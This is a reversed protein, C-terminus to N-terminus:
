DKEVGYPLEPNSGLKAFLDAVRPHWLAAGSLHGMVPPLIASWGYGSWYTFSHRHATHHVDRENDLMWAKCEIAAGNFGLIITSQM